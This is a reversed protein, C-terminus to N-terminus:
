SAAVVYGVLPVDVGSATVYPALVEEAGARIKAYTADDILDRLPSSEVEATLYADVSEFSMPEIVTRTGVVQLGASRMLAVVDALNGTSYYTGLLQRAQPGVHRTAVDMLPGEAPQEELAAPVAIVVRAGSRAVRAMERLAGARDPFFMLAMQCLVADFRDDPFPLAAVDGQKWTVDPRVRRAVILMNENLDVGTVSGNPGVRDAANRAVIGTGCAVDLVTQGARVDGLDLLHAPWRSFMNPVFIAEYAEAAELPISFTEVSSTMPDADRTVEDALM